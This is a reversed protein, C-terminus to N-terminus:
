WEAGQGADFAPIPSQKLGLSTLLKDGMSQGVAAGVSLGLPLAFGSAKQTQIVNAAVSQGSTPATQKINANAKEIGSKTAEVVAAGTAGVADGIATVAASPADAISGLKSSAADVFKKGYYLVVGAVMLGLTTKFIEAQLPGSIKM